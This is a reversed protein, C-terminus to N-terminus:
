GTRVLVPECGRDRACELDRRSDGVFPVGQLDRGLAEEINLLLATRPKRCACGDDPRHPCYEIGAIQGGAKLVETQMRDHIAALDDETFYGRGVGSQNTVVWVQWGARTLRAIAELSGPLPKWEAPAKIHADSDENIVGDRDLLILKEDAKSM